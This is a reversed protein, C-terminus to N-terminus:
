ILVFSIVFCSWFNRLQETVQLRNNVYINKYRFNVALDRLVASVIVTAVERGDVKMFGVPQCWLVLFKDGGV